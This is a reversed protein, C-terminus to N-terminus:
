AAALEEVADLLTDIDFPKELTTDFLGSEAATRIMHTSASMAIKPTDKFGRARLEAALTIGSMHPLMIDILFLDPRKEAEALQIVPVPHSFSQVDYGADALVTHLLSRLDPEDDVVVICM